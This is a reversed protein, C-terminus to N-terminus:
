MEANNEKDQKKLLLERIQEKSLDGRGFVQNSADHLRDRSSDSFQGLLKGVSSILQVTCQRQWESHRNTSASNREPPNKTKEKIARLIASLITNGVGAEIEDVVKGMYAAMQLKGYSSDDSHLMENYVRRCDLIEDYLSRFEPINDIMFHTLTNLEQKVPKPMLKYVAQGKPPLMERIATLKQFIAETFDDHKTESLAGAANHGVQRRLEKILSNEKNHLEVFQDHYTSKIVDIRIQDCVAPNVRNILIEQAKDWWMIHVHPQGAKLHVAALYEINELKMNMNRSIDSIHFKVWEEWDILTRLGAEEASEPTFSFISHHEKLDDDRESIYGQFEEDDGFGFDERYQAAMETIVKKVDASNVDFGNESLLDTFHSEVNQQEVMDWIGNCEEDTLEFQMDEGNVTRIISGIKPTFEEFRTHQNVDSLARSFLDRYASVLNNQSDNSTFYHGWVMSIGGNHDANYWTVYCGPMKNNQGLVFESNPTQIRQVIRYGEIEQKNRERFASRLEETVANLLVPHATGLTRDATKRIEEANPYDALFKHAWEKNDASFRGDYKLSDIRLALMLMAREFGYKGAAEATVKKVDLYNNNFNEAISHSIFTGCEDCLNMSERYQELEGNEKAYNISSKYIDM